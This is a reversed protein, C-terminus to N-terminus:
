KKAKTKAPTTPVAKGSLKTDASPTTPLAAKSPKADAASSVLSEGTSGASSLEAFATLPSSPAQYALPLIFFFTTGQGLESDVGIQGGLNDINQKCIYLGLGIGDQSRSLSPELQSFKLFLKKQKEKPIGPGASKVALKVTKEDPKTISITITQEKPGYKVANDIFNYIVQSIKSKDSTINIGKAQIDFAIKSESRKTMVNLSTELALVFEDFVFKEMALVPKGVEDRNATLMTKILNTLKLGETHILSIYNKYEEPITKPQKEMVESLGVISILPTKLEHTAINLVENKLHDVEKLQNITVKAATLETVDVGTGLIAQSVDNENKLVSFHWVINKESKDKAILVNEITDGPAINGAMFDLLSRTKIRDSKKVFLDVWNKGMIENAEIKLIERGRKNILLVNNNADFILVIVGAVDLYQQLKKKESKLHNRSNKIELNYEQLKQINNRLFFIMTNFSNALSAVEDNGKLLGKDVVANLDGGEIVKALNSLNSLPTVLEKSFSIAYWICGASVGIFLFLSIIQTLLRVREIETQLNKAYELQKLLLNTTNEKVFVNKKNAADYSDTVESFNGQRINNTGKDIEAILDNITNEVGNFAVRSDYDIIDADLKSILAQLENRDTELQKVMKQDSSYKIFTKYSEIFKTSSDIIKYESVMNDM